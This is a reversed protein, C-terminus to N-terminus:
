QVRCLQIQSHEKKKEKKIGLFTEPIRLSFTYKRHSGSDMQINIEFCM